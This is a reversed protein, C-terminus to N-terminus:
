FTASPNMLVIPSWLLREISSNAPAMLPVSPCCGIFLDGSYGAHAFICGALTREFRHRMYSMGLHGLAMVLHPQIRVPAPDEDGGKACVGIWPITPVGGANYADCCKTPLSTTKTTWLLSPPQWPSAGLSSHFETFYRASMYQILSM